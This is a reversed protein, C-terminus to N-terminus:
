KKERKLRRAEVRNLKKGTPSLEVTVQLPPEAQSEAQPSVPAAPSESQQPRERVVLEGRNSVNYDAKPDLGKAAVLTQVYANLAIQALAAEAQKAQSAQWFAQVTQHEQDDLFVKDTM